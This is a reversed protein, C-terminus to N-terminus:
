VMGFIEEFAGQVLERCRLELRRYRELLTRGDDTLRAAGGHRGGQQRAVIPLGTQEEMATILKWGKSYSVSMQHCALRVSGTEEILALLQAAGPGFFPRERTLSLKLMPHIRQSGWESDRKDEEQSQTGM